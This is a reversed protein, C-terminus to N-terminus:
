GDEMLEKVVMRYAQAAQNAPDHSLVPRGFAPSEAVKISHPVPQRFVRYGGGYRNQIDQQVSRCLNTAGQYMTILIGGIELQPNFRQKINGVIGIFAELGEEPLFHAQVPIIVKHSAVLANITLLDTSPGCDIIIYDFDDSLKEIIQKLVFESKIDGEDSYVAGANQKVALLSAVGALARSSPICFLRGVQVISKVLLEEIDIENIVATMLATITHKSNQAPIGLSNSLHRGPDMDILLVRMGHEALGAGLNISSTTKGVGGKSLAASLVISM